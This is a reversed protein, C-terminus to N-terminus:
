HRAVRSLCNPEREGTVRLEGSVVKYLVESLEKIRYPKAIVGSFGYKKFDAMIPDNSYGSSVIVKVEPDIETLKKTAERGGMGGPVTLDMIVADFPHGLEKAKKYLRVAQAGDTAGIVEYGINILIGCALERVIEEDDMVLIKGEGVIPKEEVEDKTPVEESSAPLYIFFTTGAGMQSEVVIHGGHSKIISRSLALGLGNGKQKTTFYPDFIRQLHEKSIGVGRDQISIKVYRGDDLPLSDRLGAITNEARLRIIGGDPMAHDANIILNNIVQSVQGEDIEVPWLGDPISFECRVNSGSLVFSASDRLLEAISAAKLVPARGKSFTLLQHTLEKAQISAREAERLREFVKDGPNAYMKALSINGLIATLINNFDHAIGGALFGISEVSQANLLEEQMKQKETIDRIVLVTGIINSDKDYILAASNTIIRETGNRAILVKGNASGFMEGTKLIVKAPDECRERTKESITCLVESLPRGIAEQESWGTLAEAVRNILLIEGEADTIIIGDDILHITIALLERETALANELEGADIIM